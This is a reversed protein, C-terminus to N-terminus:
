SYKLMLLDDKKLVRNGSLRKNRKRASAAARSARAPAASQLAGLWAPREQRRLGAALALARRERPPRVAPLVRHARPLGVPPPEVQLTETFTILLRRGAPWPVEAQPVAEVAEWRLVSVVAWAAWTARCDRAPVAVRALVAEEAVLPLALRKM